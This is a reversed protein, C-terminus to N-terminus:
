HLLYKFYHNNFSDKGKTTWLYRFLSVDVHLRGFTHAGMLAVIERGNLNFNKKFFDVTMQGNGVSSPHTENKVAKYPQDGHPSCDRRGTKFKFPRPMTVHWHPTGIDENCQYSPNNNYSSNCVMNNTEIGYEVSVMTAFAWLDARSKGSDKLSVNLAPAM